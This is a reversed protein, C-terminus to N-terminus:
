ISQQENNRETIGFATLLAVDMKSIDAANLKGIYEKLRSKDITRVQETLITSKRTLEPIEVNIHTPMNTKIKSTLPVIITTPSFFNGIDNQVIVVPRCGSQESGIGETLDAYYLEGRNIERM